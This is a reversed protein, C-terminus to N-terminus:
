FYTKFEGAMNLIKNTEEKLDTLIQKKHKPRKHEIFLNDNYRVNILRKIMIYDYIQRKTVGM